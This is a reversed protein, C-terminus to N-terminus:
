TWSAFVSIAHSDIYRRQSFFPFMNIDEVNLLIIWVLIVKLVFCLGLCANTQGKSQSRQAYSTNSSSYNLVQPLKLCTAVTIFVKLAM